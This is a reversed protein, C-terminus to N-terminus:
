FIEIAFFDKLVSKQIGPFNGKATMKGMKIQFYDCTFILKGDIKSLLGQTLLFSTFVEM